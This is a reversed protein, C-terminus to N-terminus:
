KKERIDRDPMHITRFDSYDSWYKMLDISSVTKHREKDNMGQMKKLAFQEQYENKVKRKKEKKEGKKRRQNIWNLEDRRKNM